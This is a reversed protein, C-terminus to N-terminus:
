NDCRVVQFDTPTANPAVFYFKEGEFEQEWQIAWGNPPDYSAADELQIYPPIINETVAIIAESIDNPTEPLEGALAANRFAALNQWFCELHELRQIDNIDVIDDEGFWSLTYEKWTQYQAYEELFREAQNVTVPGEPSPSKSAVLALLTATVLLIVIIVAFIKKISM